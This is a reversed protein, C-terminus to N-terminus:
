KVDVPIRDWKFNKIKNYESLNYPSPDPKKISIIEVPLPSKIDDIKVPLSNYLLQNIGVIKVPVPSDGYAFAEPPIKCIKFVIIVLCIAIVTLIFNLYLRMNMVKGGERQAGFKMLIIINM